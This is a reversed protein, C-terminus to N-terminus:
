FISEKKLYSITNGSIPIPKSKQTGNQNWSPLICPNTLGWLFIFRQSKHM